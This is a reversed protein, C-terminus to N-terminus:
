GVIFLWVPVEFRLGGHGVKLLVLRWQLGALVRAPQVVTWEHLFLRAVLAPLKSVLELDRTDVAQPQLRSGEESQRPICGALVSIGVEPLPSESGDGFTGTSSVRPGLLARVVPDEGPLARVAAPVEDSVGQAHHVDPLIKPTAEPPPLTGLSLPLLQQTHQPDNACGGQLM